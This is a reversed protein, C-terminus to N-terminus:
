VLAPTPASAPLKALVEEDFAQYAEANPSLGCFIIEAVHEGAGVADHQATDVVFVIPRQLGVRFPGLRDEGPVLDHRLRQSLLGARPKM